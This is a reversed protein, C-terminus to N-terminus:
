HHCSILRIVETVWCWSKCTELLGLSNRCSPSHEWPGARPALASLTHALFLGTILLAAGIGLLWPPWQFPSGLLASGARGEGEAPFPQRMPSEGGKGMKQPRQTKQTSHLCPPANSQMLEQPVKPSSSCRGDERHTRTNLCGQLCAPDSPM